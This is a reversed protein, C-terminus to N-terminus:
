FAQEALVESVKVTLADPSKMEASFYAKLGKAGKTRVIESLRMYADSCDRKRVRCVFTRKKDYVLLDGAHPDTSRSDAPVQVKVIMQKTQGRPIRPVQASRSNREPRKEFPQCLIERALDPVSVLPGLDQYYPTVVVTNEPSFPVCTHKHTKWDEESLPTLMTVLRAPIHCM